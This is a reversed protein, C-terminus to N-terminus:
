DLPNQMLAKRGIDKRYRMHDFHIRGAAKYARHLAEELTDGLATVALVRGGATKLLGDYTTGMHFVVVGEIKEAEEIGTIAYGKKYEGPYGGSVLCINACYGSRWKINQLDTRCLPDVLDSTMLRMYVEAEPQGFRANYELVKPGKKTMILGPYLLGTFPTGNGQLAELIPRVIMQGIEEMQLETVWSLPGVVGMGGTNPGQDDKLSRKHDQTPPFLIFDTGSCLAHISIEPGELYEEIVVTMGSQGLTGDIMFSRLTVEAEERSQAIVVGKGLALGDAKIVLPFTQLEMYSVADDYSSFTQFRATPVGARRMLDKAFAKSTEIQAAARTPGFTKIGRANLLDVLGAGLPDDPGVVALDVQSELAFNILREFEMVGIPVNEGVASTGGNGPAIYINEVKSSQLLKWALAHERSGGGVVLINM